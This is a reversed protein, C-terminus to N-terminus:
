AGCRWVSENRSRVTHNAGLANATGRTGNGAKPNGRECKKIPECTITGAIQLLCVDFWSRPQIGAGGDVYWHGYPVPYAQSRSAVGELLLDLGREPKIQNFYTGHARLNKFLQNDYSTVGQGIVAIGLRRVALPQLPMESQLRSGYETAAARFADLQHTTWLHASLQETFQAPQNIWDFQELKPSITLQEFARFRVERQPRTLASLLALESEIATREAPFKFDYDIIERLLGPIFVLPLERFTELHSVVLRRAEPPYSSFQEPQLDHPQM